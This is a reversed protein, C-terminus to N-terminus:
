WLEVFEALSSSFCAGQRKAPPRTSRPTIQGRPDKQPYLAPPRNQPRVQPHRPRPRRRRHHLPARREHRGVRVIAGDGITVGPVITVSSGIWVNKGTVIPAPYTTSRHEPDFDHNMTTLVVNNGLFTGDGLTIGGQDQFHCGTNIFVGKGVTTNKGCNTYFPPFLRFSKDVPKGIIKSFIERVEEGTHYKNNLECTLRMTVENIERMFRHMDGGGQVPEGSNMRALYEQLDM